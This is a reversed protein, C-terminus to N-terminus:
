RCLVVPFRISSMSAATIIVTLFLRGLILPAGPLLLMNRRGAGEEDLRYLHCFASVNCTKIQLCSHSMIRQVLCCDSTRGHLALMVCSACWHLQWPPQTSAPPIRRLPVEGPPQCRQPVRGQPEPRAAVPRGRVSRGSRPGACVRLAGGCLCANPASVSRGLRECGPARSRVPASQGIKLGACRRRGSGQQKGSSSRLMMLAGDSSLKMRTQACSSLLCHSEKFTLLFICFAVSM